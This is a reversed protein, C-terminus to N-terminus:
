FILTGVGRCPLTEAVVLMPARVLGLLVDAPPQKHPFGLSPASPAEAEVVDL